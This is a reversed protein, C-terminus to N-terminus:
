LSNIWDSLEASNVMVKLHSDGDFEKSFVYCSLGVYHGEKFWYRINHTKSKKSKDWTYVKDEEIERETNNFLESVEQDIKNRKNICKQTTNISTKSFFVAGSISEIIYNPDNEKFHFMINDFNKFNSSTVETRCLTNSNTNRYFKKRKNLDKATFYDLASDGISMGEIEFDKIDDSKGITSFFFILTIYILTYKKM